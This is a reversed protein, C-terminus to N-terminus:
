DLCELKKLVLKHDLMHHRCRYTSSHILNLDGMKLGLRKSTDIILDELSHIEKIMSSGKAVMAFNEAENQSMLAFREHRKSKSSRKSVVDDNIRAVRNESEGNRSKKRARRTTQSMSM